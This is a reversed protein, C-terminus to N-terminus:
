SLRAQKCGKCQVLRGNRALDFCHLAGDGNLVEVVPEAVEVLTAPAGCCDVFRQAAEATRFVTHRGQGDLLVGGQLSLTLCGDGCDGVRHLAVEDVDGQVAAVTLELWTPMREHSNM